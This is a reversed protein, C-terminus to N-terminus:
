VRWQGLFCYITLTWPTFCFTRKFYDRPIGAPLFELTILTVIVKTHVLELAQIRRIDKPDGRISTHRRHISLRTSCPIGTILVFSQWITWGHITFCFIFFLTFTESVHWENWFLRCTFHTSQCSTVFCFEFVMNMMRMFILIIFYRSLTLLRTKKTGGGKDELLTCM